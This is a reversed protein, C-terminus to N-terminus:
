SMIVVVAVHAAACSLLVVALLKLTTGLLRGWAAAIGVTASHRTRREVSWQMAFAGLFCGFIAGAITGLIPVPITLVFAGILGGGLAGWAARRSGGKKKVGSAAMVLELVEALAAVGGMAGVIWWLWGGDAWWVFAATAGLILWSGPGGYVALVFAVMATLGLGVTAATLAMWGHSAALM